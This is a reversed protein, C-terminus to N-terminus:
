YVYSGERPIIFPLFLKNAYTQKKLYLSKNNFVEGYFLLLLLIENVVRGSAATDWMCLSLLWQPSVPVQFLFDTAVLNVWSIRNPFWWSCLGDQTCWWHFQPCSPLTQMAEVNKPKIKLANIFVQLGYFNFNLHFKGVSLWVINKVYKFIYTCTFYYLFLTM